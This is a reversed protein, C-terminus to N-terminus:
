SAPSVGDFITRLRRVGEDIEATQFAGYGLVLGQRRARGMYLASLPFARVGQEAARSAIDRDRHGNRFVTTLFMGAQDGVVQLVSGLERDLAAVLAGRRERCLLRTRRLHRDFHGDRIFDALVAQIFLPSFMDMARRVAVFAPVLDPPVVIYGLRISPFLSKTFTGIYIVRSDRDLGQLSAIPLNGYRYEGDYDDEIIWVGRHRAWDLLRLRRSASMTMGLPLQHSPTVYVARPRPCRAIGAEVDLGEEDVPVAVLRGGAMQLAHRAGWYGPDEVWVPSNADLLVRATLDLAQQSGSVVMVQSADCRVARSTRLYQAVTERLAPLGMPDQYHLQSADFKRSHRAVLSAWVKIPFKDLPTAPCRFAESGAFWPGPQEELLGASRRAVIRRGRAAQDAPSGSASASASPRIRRPLVDPLSSAVSTGAGARSEVYGEALLQEFANLVPIRSIRLEAALSRTSPLRQGASLRREVIADRYGEYLQRYLPKDSSRDIPVTPLIGPPLTRV